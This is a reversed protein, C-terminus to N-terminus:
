QLIDTTNMDALLFYIISVNCYLFALCPKFDNLFLTIMVYDTGSFVVIDPKTHM